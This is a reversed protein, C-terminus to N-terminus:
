RGASCRTNQAPQHLQDSRAALRMRQFPHSDLHQRALYSCGAIISACRINQPPDLIAFNHLSLGIHGSAAQLSRRAIVPGFAAGPDSGCDPHRGDFNIGVVKKMGAKRYNEAGRGSTRRSTAFCDDM